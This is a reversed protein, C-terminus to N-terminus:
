SVERTTNLPVLTLNAAIHRPVEEVWPVGVSFTGVVEGADNKGKYDVGWSEPANNAALFEAKTGRFTDSSM